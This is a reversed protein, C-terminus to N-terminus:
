RVLIRGCEDCHAVEDPGLKRIREVEVAALQLHCGRCSNGELRAVAVGGLTRRLREYEEVLADDIEAAVAARRQVESAIEGDLQDEVQQLAAALVEVQASVAAVSADLEVLQSDLPEALEMCELVEDELSGQRRKLMAIEDQIAQLEKPASVSGSYLKTDEAKTKASVLAVEDELAKQRRAVEHREAGVTTRESTLREHETTLRALEVAEALHARRHRLQDLATDHVQLELLSELASM